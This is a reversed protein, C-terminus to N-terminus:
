ETPQLYSAFLINTHHCRQYLPSKPQNSSIQHQSPLAKIAPSFPLPQYHSSNVPQTPLSRTSLLDPDFITLLVPWDACIYLPSASHTPAEYCPLLPLYSYQYSYM